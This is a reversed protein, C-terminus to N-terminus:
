RCAFVPMVLDYGTEETFIKKLDEAYVNEVTSVEKSEGDRIYFFKLDYLDSNNLTIEVHNVARDKPKAFRFSTTKGNYMFNKGSTMLAISRMGGLQNLVELCISKNIEQETM